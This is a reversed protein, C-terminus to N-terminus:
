ARRRDRGLPAVSPTGSVPDPVVVCALGFVEEVLEATVIDSPAGQAVVAGERMAVLHTGYRAAHNLDHLVAVLTRGALHLDTFLELLEIQHAIDLVTTPEDLLLIGTDQALAMAVWARQRQGGSLEDVAKDALDTVATADMAEAVAREDAGSWQRLLRRYPFRGRAVLDRVTIGEPATSTQPLLGLRRAVDKARYGHIDAGDLVVRGETPRLLRAMGRLLTSKGCANPGVIVTFSGDPISVTLDRSVTRTDYGIAAREVSLRAGGAPVDTRTEEANMVQPEAM